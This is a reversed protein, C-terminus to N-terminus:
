NCGDVTINKWPKFNMEFSDYTNIQITSLGNTLTVMDSFKDSNLDFFAVLHGFDNTQLGVDVNYLGEPPSEDFM